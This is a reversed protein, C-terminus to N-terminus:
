LATACSLRLMITFPLLPGHDRYTFDAPRTPGDHTFDLPRPSCGLGLGRTGNGAKVQWVGMQDRWGEIKQDFSRCYNALCFEFVGLRPPVASARGVFM